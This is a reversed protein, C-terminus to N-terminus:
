PTISSMSAHRNCPEGVSKKPMGLYALRVMGQLFRRWGSAGGDWYTHHFYDEAQDFSLVDGTVPTFKVVRANWLKKDHRIMMSTDGTLFIVVPEVPARLTEEERGRPLLVEEAIQLRSALSDDKELCELFVAKHYGNENLATAVAAAFTEGVVVIKRDTKTVDYFYMGVMNLFNTGKNMASVPTDPTSPPDSM